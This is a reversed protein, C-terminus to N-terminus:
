VPWSWLLIRASNPSVLGLIASGIVMVITVLATDFSESECERQREKDREREREASRNLSQERMRFRSHTSSRM